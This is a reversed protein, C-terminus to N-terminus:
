RITRVGRRELLVRMMAGSGGAALADVAVHGLDLRFNRVYVDAAVGEFEDGREFGFTQLHGIGAIGAV